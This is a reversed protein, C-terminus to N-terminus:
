LILFWYTLFLCTLHIAQDMGITIFFLHRKGKIWFYSTIRSTIWDVVFHLILNIIGFYFNFIMFPLSYIIVHQFLIGNHKSKNLAMKNSQFVFDMIFHVWIISLIILIEM